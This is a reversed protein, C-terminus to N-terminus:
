LPLPIENGNLKAIQDVLVFDISYLGAAADLVIMGQSELMAIYQPTQQDAIQEIEQPTANALQPNIVLQGLVFERAIKEMLPKALQIHSNANLHSLWFRPDSVLTPLTKVGEIKANLVGNFQGEPLTGKFETINMEPGVKLLNLLNKDFFASFAAMQQDPTPPLDPATLLKSFQIYSEEDIKKMEIAFEFDQGFNKAYDFRGLKIVQILNALQANKDLQSEVLYSFHELTLSNPSESGTASLNAFTIQATYQPVQDYDILDLLQGKIQSDVAIHNITFNVESSTLQVSPLVGNHSLVGDQTTATGQYAAIDLVTFEDVSYQLAQSADQYSLNGAIDIQMAIQFLPKSKDWRLDHGFDKTILQLNAHALDFGTNILPAHDVSLDFAVKMEQIPPKDPAPQIVSNLDIAVEIESYSNFWGPQSTVIKAQYFPVQNIQEVIAETQLNIQNSILKPTVVIAAGLVLITGIFVKTM